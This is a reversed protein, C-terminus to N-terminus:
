NWMTIKFKICISKNTSKTFVNTKKRKGRPINTKFVNSDKGGGKSIKLAQEVFEQAYKYPPNTIIDRDNFDSELIELFNIIKTNPCGRDFIDSSLVDYGKELLVKSLHGGGCACEWVKNNFSEEELLLELAKPDTAYYDNAERETKSHNSAGITTYISNQNGIWDKDM